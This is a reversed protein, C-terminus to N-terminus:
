GNDIVEDSEGPTDPFDAGNSDDDFQIDEEPYNM